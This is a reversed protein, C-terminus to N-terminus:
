PPSKWVASGFALVTGLSDVMPGYGSPQYELARDTRDDVVRPSLTYIKCTRALSFRRGIGCAVVHRRRHLHPGDSIRGASSGIMPASRSSSPVRDRDRLDTVSGPFAVRIWQQLDASDADWRSEQDARDADRAHGCDAVVRAHRQHDALLCAVPRGRRFVAAWARALDAHRSRPRARDVNGPAAAAHGSWARSPPGRSRSRRDHTFHRSVPCGSGGPTSRPRRARQIATVAAARASSCRDPM